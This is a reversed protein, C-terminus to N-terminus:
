FAIPVQRDLAGLWLDHHLERAHHIEGMCQTRFKRAEATTAFCHHFDHLLEVPVAYIDLALSHAFVDCGTDICRQM